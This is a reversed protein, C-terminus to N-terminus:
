SLPLHCLPTATPIAIGVFFNPIEENKKLAYISPNVSILIM